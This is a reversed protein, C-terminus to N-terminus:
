IKGSNELNKKLFEFKGSNERLNKCNKLNGSSELHVMNELNTTVKDSSFIDLPAANLEPLYKGQSFPWPSLNKLSVHCNEFENKGLGHFKSLLHLSKLNFPSCILIQFNKSYAVILTVM